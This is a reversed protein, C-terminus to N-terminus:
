AKAPSLAQGVLASWRCFTSLGAGAEPLSFGAGGPLWVPFIYFSCLCTIEGAEPLSFRCWWTVVSSFHLFELPLRNRM